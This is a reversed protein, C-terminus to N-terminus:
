DLNRHDQLWRLDRVKQLASHRRQRGVAEGPRADSERRNSRQMQRYLGLDCAAASPSSAPEDELLIIVDALLPDNEEAM